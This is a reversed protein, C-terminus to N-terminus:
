NAGVTPNMGRAARSYVVSTAVLVLGTVLLGAVRWPTAAGAMDLVLVKGAVIGLIALGAWRLRERSFRFGLVVSAIGVAGLWASVAAQQLTHSSGFPPSAAPDFFRAVLITGHVALLLGIAVPLQDRHRRATGFIALFSAIVVVIALNPLCLLWHAIWGSGWVSTAASTSVSTSASISPHVTGLVSSVLVGAAAIAVAGSGCSALRERDAQHALVSTTAGIGAVLMCTVLEVARADDRSTEPRLITAAALTVLAVMGFAFALVECNAGFREGRFRQGLLALMAVVLAAVLLAGSSSAVSDASEPRALAFGLTLVIWGLAALSSWTAGITRVLTRTRGVTTAVAPIALLGVVAAYGDCAVLVLVSWLLAACAGLFRAGATPRADEGRDGTWLRAAAVLLVSIVLPSWMDARLEFGWTAPTGGASWRWSAGATGVLSGVLFVVTAAATGLAAGAMGLRAHLPSGLRRGLLIGVTGLAAWAVGLAGGRVLVGVQALVLAGAIAHLVTSQTAAAAALRAADPDDDADRADTGGVPAAALLIMGGAFALAAMVAPAWSRIDAWPDARFAGVLALSAAFVTALTAIAGNSRRGAGALAAAGTEAVAMAWWLVVFGTRAVPELPVTAFVLLAVPAHLLGFWRLPAFGPPGIRALVLASAYIASLYAAFAVGAHGPLAERASGLHVFVAIGYAGVLSIGGVSAERSRLTLAAGAVAVGFGVALGGELGFVDLGFVDLPQMGACTSAYAGGIGAALLAAAPVRGLTERLLLGAGAFLASAAYALLLKVSPPLGGIWGQDVVFKGFIAIAAIVIAGGAWAAVKLGLFREVGADDAASATPVGDVARAPAGSTAPTGGLLARAAALRARFGGLAPAHPTTPQFPNWMPGVAPQGGQVPRDPAIPPTPAGGAAIPPHPPRDVEGTPRQPDRSATDTAARVASPAAPPASPTVAGRPERSELAALRRELADLRALIEPDQMITCRVVRARDLPGDSPM